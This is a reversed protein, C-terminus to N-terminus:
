FASGATPDCAQRITEMALTARAALDASPFSFRIKNPFSEEGNTAQGSVFEITNGAAKIDYVKSWEITFRNGSYGVWRDPAGPPRTVDVVSKCPAEVTYNSVTLDTFVPCPDLPSANWCGLDKYMLYRGHGIGGNAILKQLFLHANEPTQQLANAATAADPVLTMTLCLILWRRIM